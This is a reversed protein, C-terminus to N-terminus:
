NLRTKRKRAGPPRTIRVIVLLCGGFTKWIHMKTRIGVICAFCVFNACRRKEQLIDCPKLLAASHDRGKTRLQPPGGGMIWQKSFPHQPPDHHPPTLIYIQIYIYMCMSQLFTFTCVYVSPDRDYMWMCVSVCKCCTTWVLIDGTNHSM